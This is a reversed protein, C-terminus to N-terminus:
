LPAQPVVGRCHAHWGLHAKIMALSPAPRLEAKRGGRHPPVSAREDDVQVHTTYDKLETTFTSVRRCPKELWVLLTVVLRSPVSSARELRLWRIINPGRRFARDADKRMIPRRGDGAQAGDHTSPKRETNAECSPTAPPPRM